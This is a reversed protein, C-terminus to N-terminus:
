ERIDARRLLLFSGGLIIVIWAVLVGAGILPELHPGPVEGPTFGTQPSLGITRDVDSNLVAIRSALSFLPVIELGASKWAGLNAVLADLLFYGYALILAFVPSRTLVAALTAVAVFALCTALQSAWVLVVEDLTVSSAKGSGTLPVLAPIIAGLLALVALAAAAVAVIAILRVALLRYRRPEVLLITRITGWDFETAVWSATFFATGMAVFTGGLQLVTVFARPLLYLDQTGLAQDLITANMAKMQAIADAPMSTDIPELQPLNAASSAASYLSLASLVLCGVIVIWLDYRHRLRIWDAQLLGRM